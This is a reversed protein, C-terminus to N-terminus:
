HSTQLRGTAAVALGDLVAALLQNPRSSVQTLATITRAGLGPLDILKSGPALSDPLALNPVLAAALGANVLALAAHFELCTHAGRLPLGTSARLRELVSHVASGPPGDVWPRDALEGIHCALAL